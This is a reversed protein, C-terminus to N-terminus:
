EPNAEFAQKNDACAFQYAVGGYNAVHNGNGRVPGTGQHYSVLDYGQVGVVSHADGAIAATAAASVSLFTVIALLIKKM